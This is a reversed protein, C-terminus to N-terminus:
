KLRYVIGPQIGYSPYGSHHFVRCGLVLMRFGALDSLNLIYM